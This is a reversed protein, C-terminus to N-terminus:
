LCRLYPQNMATEKVASLSVPCTSPSQVIITPLDSESILKNLERSGSKRSSMLVLHGARHGAAWDLRPLWHELNVDDEINM